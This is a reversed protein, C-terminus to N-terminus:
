SWSFYWGFVFKDTIMLAPFLSLVNAFAIVQKRLVSTQLVEGANSSQSLRSMFVELSIIQGRRLRGRQSLVTALHQMHYNVSKWRGVISPGPGQDDRSSPTPQPLVTSARDSLWVFESSPELTVEM